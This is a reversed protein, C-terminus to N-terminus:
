KHRLVTELQILHNKDHGGMTDLVTQLSMLGREPHTIPKELVEASLSGAFVLNWHRLAVFSAVAANVDLSPYSHSWADQDFPQIVHNQEAAGQRLRFAFAIECDALHCIIQRATWKGEAYTQDWGEPGLQEAIEQIRGPTDQIVNM